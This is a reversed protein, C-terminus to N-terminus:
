VVNGAYGAMWLAFLVFSTSAAGIALLKIFEAM